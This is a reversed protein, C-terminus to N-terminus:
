AQAQLAIFVWPEGEVDDIKTEFRALDRATGDEPDRLKKGTLLDFRTGHCPCEIVARVAGDADVTFYTIPKDAAGWAGGLLINCGRHTCTRAISYFKPQPVHSPADTKEIRVLIRPIATPDRDRVQQTVDVPPGGAAYDQVKMLKVFEGNSM